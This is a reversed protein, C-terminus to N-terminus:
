CINAAGEMEFARRKAETVAYGGAKRIEREGEWDTERSPGYEEAQENLM